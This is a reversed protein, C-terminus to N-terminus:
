WLADAIGTLLVNLQQVQFVEDIPQGVRDIQIPADRADEDRALRIRGPDLNRWPQVPNDLVRPALTVHRPRNNDGREGPLRIFHCVTVADLRQHLRDDIVARRFGSEWRDSWFRPTGETARRM